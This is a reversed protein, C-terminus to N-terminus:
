TKEFVGGLEYHEDFIELMQNVLRNMEARSILGTDIGHAINVKSLWDNLAILLKDNIM